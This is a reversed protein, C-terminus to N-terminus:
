IPDCRANRNTKLSPMVLVPFAPMQPASAQDLATLTSKKKRRERQVTMPLCLMMTKMRQTLKMLTLRTMLSLPAVFTFLPFSQLPILLPLSHQTVPPGKCSPLTPPLCSHCLSAKSAVTGCLCHKTVLTPPAPAEFTRPKNRSCQQPLLIRMPSSPVCHVPLTQPHGSDDLFKWVLTGVKTSSTAGNFGKAHISSAKPPTQFDRLSNSICSTAGGDVLIDFSDPDFMAGSSRQGSVALQARSIVATIASLAIVRVHHRTSWKPCCHQHRHASGMGTVSDHKFKCGKRWLCCSWEDFLHDHWWSVWEACFLRWCSFCQRPAGHSKDSRTNSASHPRKV